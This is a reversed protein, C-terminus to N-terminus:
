PPITTVFLRYGAPRVQPLKSRGGREGDNQAHYPQRFRSRQAGYILIGQNAAAFFRHVDLIWGVRRFSGGTFRSNAIGSGTRSPANNTSPAHRPLRNFKPM